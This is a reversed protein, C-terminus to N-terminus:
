KVYAWNYQQQETMHKLQINENRTAVLQEKTEM